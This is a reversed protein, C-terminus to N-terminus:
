WFRSHLAEAITMKPRKGNTSNSLWWSFSPPPYMYFLNGFLLTRYAWFFGKTELTKQCSPTAGKLFAMAFEVLEVLEVGVKKADLSM